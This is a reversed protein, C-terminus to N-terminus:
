RFLISEYRDLMSVDEAGVTAEGSPKSELKVQMTSALSEFDGVTVTDFGHRQAMECLSQDYATAVVPVKLALAELLSNPHGESNSSLVYLDAKTMWRWPNSDYGQLVVQREVGLTKILQELRNREEGEGIIVGRPESAKATPM